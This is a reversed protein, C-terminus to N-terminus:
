HFESQEMVISTAMGAPLCFDEDSDFQGGWTMLGNVLSQMSATLPNDEDDPSSSALLDHPEEEPIPAADVFPLINDLISPSIKGEWVDLTMAPLPSSALTMHEIAEITPSSLASAMGPAIDSYVQAHVEDDDDVEEQASALINGAAIDLQFRNVRTETCPILTSGLYGDRLCSWADVARRTAVHQSRAHSICSRLLERKRHVNWCKVDHALGLAARRKATTAEHEVVAAHIAHSQAISSRTHAARAEDISPFREGECASQATFAAADAAAKANSATKAARVTSRVDEAASVASSALSAQWSLDDIMELDSEEFVEKSQELGAVGKLLARQSVFRGRLGEWSDFGQVLELHFFLREERAEGIGAIASLCRSLTNDVSGIVERLKDINDDVSFDGLFASEVESQDSSHIHDGQGNGYHFRSSQDRVSSSAAIAVGCSDEITGTLSGACLIRREPAPIPLPLMDYGDDESTLNDALESEVHVVGHEFSEANDDGSAEAPVVKALASEEDSWGACRNANDFIPLSAHQLRASASPLGTTELLGHVKLALAAQAATRVWSLNPHHDHESFSSQLSWFQLSSKGDVVQSNQLRLNKSQTAHDALFLKAAELGSQSAKLITNLPFSTSLAPHELLYNLYRELQRAKGNPSNPNYYSEPIAVSRSFSKKKPGISSIGGEARESKKNSNSSKTLYSGWLSKAANKIMGVGAAAAKMAAGTGDIATQITNEDPQFQSALTATSQGPFPPLIRGCLTGGIGKHSQITQNLWKLDSHSRRVIVDDSVARKPSYTIAFELNCGSSSPLLKSSTTRSGFLAIKVTGSHESASSRRRSIDHATILSHDLDLEPLPLPSQGNREHDALRLPTITTPPAPPPVDIVVVESGRPSNRHRMTQQLHRASFRRKAELYQALTIFRCFVMWGEVGLKVNSLNTRPKAATCGCKAVATWVEDFTPSNEGSVNLKRLDDDRRWFVPCRLTVFERLASMCVVGRSETDLIAFIRSMFEFDQRDFLLEHTEGNDLSIGIMYHYSLPSNPSTTLDIRCLSGQHPVTVFFETDTPIGFSENGIRTEVTPASRSHSSYMLNHEPVNSLSDFPDNWQDEIPVQDDNM